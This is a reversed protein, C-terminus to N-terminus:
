HLALILWENRLKKGAEFHFLVICTIICELVAFISPFTAPHALYINQAFGTERM